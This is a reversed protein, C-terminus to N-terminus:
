LRTTRFVTRTTKILRAAAIRAGHNNGSKKWHEPGHMADMGRLAVRQETEYTGLFRKDAPNHTDCQAKCYRDPSSDSKGLREAM